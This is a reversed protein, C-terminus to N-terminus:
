DVRIFKEKREVRPFVDLILRRYLHYWVSIENTPGSLYVTM